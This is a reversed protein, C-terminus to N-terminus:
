CSIPPTRASLREISPNIPKMGGARSTISISPVAPFM